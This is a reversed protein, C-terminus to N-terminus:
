AACPNRPTLLYRHPLRHRRLLHARNGDIGCGRSSLVPLKMAVAPVNSDGQLLVSETSAEDVRRFLDESRDDRCIDPLLWSHLRGSAHTLRLSGSTGYFARNTITNSVGQHPHGTAM